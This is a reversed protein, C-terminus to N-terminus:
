ELIKVQDNEIKIKGKSFLNLAKLIIEQEAKQVKSKITEVTEDEGLIVKKQIIIPGADVEETVFHLTCGTEKVGSKLVKEHVDIDMGGAFKPLLSPHVNIIKNRWKKVFWGSFIKMYGIALVLEVDNEDLIKSVEQDFNERGKGKADIYASNINHNRARELIYADQKNSIVVSIKANLQKSDIADIIAQLDTGKTSGLIGINLIKVV